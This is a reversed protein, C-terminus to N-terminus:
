ETFIYYGRGDQRFDKTWAATNLLTEATDESLEVNAIGGSIRDNDHAEDSVNHLLLGTSTNNTGDERIKIEQMEMQAGDATTFRMFKQEGQFKAIIAGKMRFSEIKVM